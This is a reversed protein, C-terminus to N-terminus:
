RRISDKNEDYPELHIGKMGTAGKRPWANWVSATVLLSVGAYGTFDNDLYFKGAVIGAAGIMGIILPGYGRRQRARYGLM